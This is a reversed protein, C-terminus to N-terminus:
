RHRLIEGGCKSCLAIAGCRIRAQDIESRIAQRHGHTVNGDHDQGCGGQGCHRKPITTPLVNRFLRARLRQWAICACHVDFGGRSPRRKGERGQARWLTDCARKAEVARVSERVQRSHARPADKAQGLRDGGAMDDGKRKRHVRPRIDHNASACSRQM